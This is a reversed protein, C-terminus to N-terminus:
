GGMRCTSLSARRHDGVEITRVARSLVFEEVDDLEEWESDGESYDSDDDSSLQDFEDGQLQEFEGFGQVRLRQRMEESLAAGESQASVAEATNRACTHAGTVSRAGAHRCGGRVAM